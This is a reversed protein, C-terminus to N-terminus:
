ESRWWNWRVRDRQQREGCYDSKSAGVAGRAVHDKNKRREDRADRSGFAGAVDFLRQVGAETAASKGGKSIERRGM